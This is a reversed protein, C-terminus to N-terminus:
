MMKSLMRGTQSTVKTMNSLLHCVDLITELLEGTKCQAGYFGPPCRCVGPFICVENELCAQEGECVAVCMFVCVSHSYIVIWCLVM